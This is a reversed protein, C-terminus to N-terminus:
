FTISVYLLISFFSKPLIMFPVFPSTLHGIRGLTTLVHGNCRCIHSSCDLETNLRGKSNYYWESKRPNLQRETEDWISNFIISTLALILGEIGHYVMDEYLNSQEYLCATDENCLFSIAICLCRICSHAEFKPAVNKPLGM